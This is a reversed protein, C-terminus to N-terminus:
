KITIAEPERSSNRLEPLEKGRLFDSDTDITHILDNLEENRKQLEVLQCHLEENEKQLALRNPLDMVKVVVRWHYVACTIGIIILAFLVFVYWNSKFIEPNERVLRVLELLESIM